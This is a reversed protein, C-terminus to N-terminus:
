SINLVYFNLWVTANLLPANPFHNFNSLTMLTPGWSLLPSFVGVCVYVCRQWIIGQVAKLSGALGGGSADRLNVSGSDHALIIIIEKYNIWGTTNQYWPCFLGQIDLLTWPAQKGTNGNDTSLIARRPLLIQSFDWLQRWGWEVCNSDRHARPFKGGGLDAPQPPFTLGSPPVGHLSISRPDLASALCHSSM